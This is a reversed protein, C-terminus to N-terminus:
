PEPQECIAQPNGLISIAAPEPGKFSSLPRTAFPLTQACGWVDRVAGGAGVQASSPGLLRSGRHYVEELQKQPVVSALFGSASSTMMKDTGEEVKPTTKSCGRTFGGHGAVWAARARRIRRSLPSQWHGQPCFDHTGM